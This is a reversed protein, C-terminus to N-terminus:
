AISGKVCPAWSIRDTSYECWESLQKWTLNVTGASVYTDAICYVLQEDAYGGGLAQMKAANWRLWCVAPVDSHDWLASDTPPKVRYDHNNLWRPDTDTFWHQCFGHMRAEIQHGQSFASMVPMLEAARKADM